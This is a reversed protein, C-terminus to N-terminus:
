AEAWSHNLGSCTWVSRRVFVHESSGYAHCEAAKAARVAEHQRISVVCVCVRPLQLIFKHWSYSSPPLAWLRSTNKPTQRQRKRFVHLLLIVAVNTIARWLFLACSQFMWESYEVEPFSMKTMSEYVQLSPWKLLFVHLRSMIKLLM